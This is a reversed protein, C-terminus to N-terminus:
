VEPVVPLGFPATAVWRLWMVLKMFVRSAPATARPMSSSKAATSGSSAGCPPMSCVKGNKWM